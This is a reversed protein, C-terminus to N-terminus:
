QIKQLEWECVVAPESGLPRKFNSIGYIKNKGNQEMWKKLALIPEHPVLQVQDGPRLFNVWESRKGDNSNCVTPGGQEQWCLCGTSDDFAVGPAEMSAGAGASRAWYYSIVHHNNLGLVLHANSAAPVPLDLEALFTPGDESASEKRGRKVSAHWYCVGLKSLVNKNANNRVAENPEDVLIHPCWSSSSKTDIAKPVLVENSAANLLLPPVTEANGETKGVFGVDILFAPTPLDSLLVLSDCRNWLTTFIFAAITYLKTYVGRSRFM